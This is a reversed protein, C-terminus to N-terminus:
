SAVIFTPLTHHTLLTPHNGLHRNLRIRIPPQICRVKELFELRRQRRLNWELVRANWPRRLLAGQVRRRYLAAGAGVAFLCVCLHAVCPDSPLDVLRCVLSTRGFACHKHRSAKGLVVPRSDIAPAHHKPQCLDVLFEFLFGLQNRCSWQVLPPGHIDQAFPRQITHQQSSVLKHHLLVRQVDTNCPM